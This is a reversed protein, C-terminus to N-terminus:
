GGGDSRGWVSAAVALGLFGAHFVSQAAYFTNMVWMPLGEPGQGAVFGEYAAWVITGVLDLVLFGGLAALALTSVRPHERFTLVGYSIGVLLVIWVPASVLLPAVVTMVGADYLM